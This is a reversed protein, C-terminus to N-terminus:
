YTSMRKRASRCKQLVRNAEAPAPILTSAKQAPMLPAQLRLIQLIGGLALVLPALGRYASMRKWYVGVTAWTRGHAVMHAWSRGDTGSPAGLYWPARAEIPACPRVPAAAPTTRPLRDFAHKPDLKVRAARDM